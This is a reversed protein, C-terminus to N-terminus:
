RSFKVDFRGQTVHIIEGFSNIGDFWFTGSAIQNAQEFKKFHIEGNVTDNTIFRKSFDVGIWHIAEGNGSIGQKLRFTQGESVKLSDLGLDVALLPKSNYDTAALQFVYGVPSPYIYQYYAKINTGSYGDSGRPVFVQGNVLCGFTNAGNQTEPPLQSIEKKCAEVFFAALLAVILIAKM